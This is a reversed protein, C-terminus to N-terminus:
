SHPAGSHLYVKVDLIQCSSVSRRIRYQTVRSYPFTPRHLRRTIANAVFMTNVYLLKGSTEKLMFTRQCRIQESRMKFDLRYVHEVKPNPVFLSATIDLPIEDLRGEPVHSQLETLLVRCIGCHIEASRRLALMSMHHSFHLDYTGKWVRGEQGRLMCFCVECLM